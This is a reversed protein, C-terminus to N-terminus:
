LCNGKDSKANNIKVCQYSGSLYSKFWNLPFGRIGYYKLKKLLIDHNVMDFAKTFDPFISCSKERNEIAKVINTHLDLIAHDTSKRRQFGYQHKYM